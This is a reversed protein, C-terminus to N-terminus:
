SESITQRMGGDKSEIHPPKSASPPQGENPQKGSALPNPQSQAKLGEIAQMVQAQQAEMQLQLQAVQAQMQLHIQLKSWIDNWVM